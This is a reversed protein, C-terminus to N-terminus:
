YLSFQYQVQKTVTYKVGNKQAPIFVIKKAAKMAEETLGNPLGSVLSIGGISGNANFTVRLMVSGQTNAQRSEETYKARPKLCIRIAQTVQNTETPMVDAKVESNNVEDGLSVDSGEGIEIGTQKKNTNISEIFNKVESKTDDAGFVTLEYFLKNQLDSVLWINQTQTAFKFAKQGNLPVNTETLNEKFSARVQALRNLFTRESFENKQQCYPSFPQDSKYYIKLLYAIGDAYVGFEQADFNNCVDTFYIKVPLKPLLVSVNKGTIKYREWKIPATNESSKKQGYSSSFVSLIILFFILKKNM